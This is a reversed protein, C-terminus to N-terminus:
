LSRSPSQDGGNQRRGETEASAMNPLRLLPVVSLLNSPPAVM